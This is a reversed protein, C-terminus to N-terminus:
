TGSAGDKGPRGHGPLYAAVCLPPVRLSAAAARKLKEMHQHLLEKYQKNSKCYSPVTTPLQWPRGKQRAACPFGKFSIQISLKETM